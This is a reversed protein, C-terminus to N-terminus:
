VNYSGLNVSSKSFSGELNLKSPGMIPPRIKQAEEQHWVILFLFINQKGIKLVPKTWDVQNLRESDVIFCNAILLYM